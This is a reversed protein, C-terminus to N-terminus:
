IGSILRSASLKEMCAIEESYFLINSEYHPEQRRDSPDSGGAMGLYCNLFDCVTSAHLNRAFQSTRLLSVIERDNAASYTTTSMNGALIYSLDDPSHM